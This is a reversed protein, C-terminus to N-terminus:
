KNYKNKAHIRNPIDIAKASDKGMLFTYGVIHFFM